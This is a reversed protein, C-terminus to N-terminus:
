KVISYNHSMICEHVLVGIHVYICLLKCVPMIDKNEAAFEKWAQVSYHKHVM